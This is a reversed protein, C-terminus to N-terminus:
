GASRRFGAASAKGARKGTEDQKGGQRNEALLAHLVERANFLRSKVTGESIGLGAAMSAVSEGKFYHRVVVERLLPSIGSLAKRVADAGSHDVLTRVFEDAVASLDWLDGLPILQVRKKRLDMRRFNLIIAYVWSFFSGTPEFTRIKRIAQEFARFVLEEADSDNRCLLAAAAFLRDGYESVLRRAGSEQDIRIEQWIEM